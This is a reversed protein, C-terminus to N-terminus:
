GFHLSRFASKRGDIFMAIFPRNIEVSHQGNDVRHHYLKKGSLRLLVQAGMWVRGTLYDARSFRAIEPAKGNPWWM